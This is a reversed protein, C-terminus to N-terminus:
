FTHLMHQHFKNAKVAAHASGRAEARRISRRVRSPSPRYCPSSWPPPHPEYQPPPYSPLHFTSISPCVVTKASWLCRQMKETRVCAWSNIWLILFSKSFGNQYTLNWMQFWKSHGSLKYQQSLYINNVISWNKVGPHIKWTGNKVGLIQCRFTM